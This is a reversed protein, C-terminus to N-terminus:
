SYQDGANKRRILGALKSFFSMKKPKTEQRIYVRRAHANFASSKFRESRHSRKAHNRASSM